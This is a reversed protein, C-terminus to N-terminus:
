MKRDAKAKNYERELLDLVSSEVVPEMSLYGETSEEVLVHARDILDRGGQAKWVDFSQRSFLRSPWWSDRLHAVTHEEAMFVGGIGLSEILEHAMTEETVEFGSVIYNYSDIWENDLVLQEFSFGQDAGAIGQCGIGVTGALCSFIANAGKEFGGQFDPLLADTLASNSGGPIGYFGALQATAIGILAQGPSGFSCLLSSPDVMHSGHCYWAPMAGTLAYISFLCALVETNFSLVTGALTLPATSGGLIMPALGLGHGRDAFILAMELTEKRLKFPSITEFLYSEKCGMIDAMDLISNASEPTLIYTGGRKKSYKYLLYFSHVDTFDPGVDSPIVVANCLPINKLKEVLSIGKIIDESRGPRRERSGYDVIFLQTSISGSIPKRLTQDAQPATKNRLDKLLDEMVEAPIRMLQKDFDVMAGARACRRLCETNPMFLGVRELIGLSAKHIHSIEDESLVALHARLGNM